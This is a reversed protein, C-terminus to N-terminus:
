RSVRAGAQVSSPQLGETAERPRFAFRRGVPKILDLLKTALWRAPNEIAVHTLWAVLIALLVSSLSLLLNSSKATIRTAQGVLGSWPLAMFLLSHTLYLPYTLDGCFNFVRSDKTVAFVGPLALAFCAASLHFTATSVSSANDFSSLVLALLLFSFSVAPPMKLRRHLAAGFHGLLFFMVTGPFFFYSLATYQSEDGPHVVVIAARLAASLGFILLVLINRRLVFPAFAYFTLEAGLTWAIEGGPPFSLVHTQTYCRFGALWDSGFLLINPILALRFDDSLNHRYAAVVVAVLLVAWWLPYIRLVRSRYFAFTGAGATAYKEHLVYSILFGSIVYFFLVARGSWLNFVWIGEPLTGYPELWDRLHALTVGLALL